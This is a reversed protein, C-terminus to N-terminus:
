QLSAGFFGQLSGKRFCSAGRERITLIEEPVTHAM